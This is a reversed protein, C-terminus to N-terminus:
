IIKNWIQNREGTSPRQSIQQHMKLMSFHSTMESHGWFQQTSECELTLWTNQKCEEYEILNRFYRDM